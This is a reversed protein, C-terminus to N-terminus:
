IHYLEGSMADYFVAQARNPGVHTGDDKRITGIYCRGGDAVPYTVLDPFSTGTANIIINNDFQPPTDMALRGIAVTSLGVSNANQLAHAGIAVAGQALIKFGANYGIAISEKLQTDNGAELGIAIANIEQNLQGAGAGIAVAHSGQNINGALNGVAVANDAQTTGSASGVAVCALGQNLGAGEGIAISHFNQAISGTDTGIAITGLVGTNVGFGLKIPNGATSTSINIIPDQQLFGATMIINTNTTDGITCVSQLDQLAGSGVVWDIGSPTSALVQGALGTSNNIDTITTTKINKCFADDGLSNSM